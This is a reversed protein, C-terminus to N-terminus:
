RRWRNQRRLHRQQHHRHRAPHSQVALRRSTSGAMM